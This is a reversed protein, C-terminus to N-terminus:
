RNALAFGIPECGIFAVENIFPLNSRIYNCLNLLNELVPKVLVIRLQIPQEYNQLVYFGELTEEFALHQQM